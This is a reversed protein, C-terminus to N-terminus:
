NPVPAPDSADPLGLSEDLLKRYVANQSFTYAQTDSDPKTFILYFAGMGDGTVKREGKPTFNTPRTGTMSNWWKMMSAKDNTRVVSDLREALFYTKITEGSSLGFVSKVDKLCRVSGPIETGSNPECKADPNEAQYQELKKRKDVKSGASSPEPALGLLDPGSKAFLVADAIFEPSLTGTIQQREGFVRFDVTKAQSMRRLEDLTMSYLATEDVKAGYVVERNRISGDGVLEIMKSGDLKLHLSAGRSIFIWDETHTQIKLLFPRDSNRAQKLAHLSFYVYTGSWFSGGVVDVKKIETFYHTSGDFKDEKQYITQASLFTSFLLLGWLIATLVNRNM